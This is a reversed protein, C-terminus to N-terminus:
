DKIFELIKNHVSKEHLIRVHGFGKTKYFLLRPLVKSINKADDFPVVKDGEDHIIMSPNLVKKYMESLSLDNVKVGTQNELTLIFLKSLNENIDMMEFFNNFITSVKDPSSVTILKKVNNVRLKSVSYILSAGGFSHGIACEFDLSYVDLIHKIVKAFDIMNTTKGTSEGHAPGDFTIVRYKADLLSPILRYFDGAQGEWGHVLLIPPDDVDGFDYTMVSQGNISLKTCKAKDYQRKIKPNKKRKVHPSCFLEICYSVALSKKIFYLAKIKLIIFNIILSQIKVMFYKKGFIM